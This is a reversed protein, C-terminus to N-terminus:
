CVSYYCCCCCGGGGCSGGRERAIAYGGKDQHGWFGDVLVLAIGSTPKLVTKTDLIEEVKEGRSIVCLWIRSIPTKETKNTVFM